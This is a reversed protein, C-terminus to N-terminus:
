KTTMQGSVYCTFVNEVFKILKHSFSKSQSRQQPMHLSPAFDIVAAVTTEYRPNLLYSRSGHPGVACDM